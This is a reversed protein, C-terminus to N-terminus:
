DDKIEKFKDSLIKITKNISPMRHKSLNQYYSSDITQDKSRKAQFDVNDISGSKILSVDLGLEECVLNGFEFKSVPQQGAIHIVGSVNNRLIWEIEEAFSWITIPTFFVDDFLVIEEKHKVSNIIWEVFSSKNTDINKGVITTRIVLHSNNANKLYDEALVKSKGYVTEPNTTDNEKALPQEESFVAESSIFIIKTNNNKCQLLKKVSEANVAMAQNPHEECQDVNTIAACHIIVDPISWRILKEYSDSLLDFEKFNKVHNNKFNTCDTAFITYKEKLALTLTSGLMGSAGTILVRM